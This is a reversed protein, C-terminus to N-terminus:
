NGLEAEIIKVFEPEPQAGVVPIGNIFFAPTGTVGVQEGVTMDKQVSYSYRESDLCENFSAEDLGLEKAYAKLDANSLATNHNFLITHYEWFKGQENACEAALASKFADPHVKTLPFNKFILVVQGQYKEYISEIRAEGVKCFPCEFDSFIVIKVPASINGKIPDNELPVNIRQDSNVKSGALGYWNTFLGVVVLVLVAFIALAVINEVRESKSDGAVSRGKM